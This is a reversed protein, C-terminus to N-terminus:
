RSVRRSSCARSSEMLDVGAESTSSVTVPLDKRTFTISQGPWALKVSSTDAASRATSPATTTTSATSPTMIHVLLATSWASRSPRATHTTTFLISRRRSSSLSGGCSAYWLTICVSSSILAMISASASAEPASAERTDGSSPLTHKAEATCPQDKESRDKASIYAARAPSRSCRSGESSACRSHPSQYRSSSRPTSTGSRGWGSACRVKTCSTSSGRYLTYECTSPSCGSSTRATRECSRPMARVSSSDWMSGLGSRRQTIRRKRPAGVPKAVM